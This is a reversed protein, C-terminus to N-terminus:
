YWQIQDNGADKLYNNALVFCNNYQWDRKNRPGAVPHEAKIVFHKTSTVEFKQAEAGWLLFVVNECNKDIAKITEAILRYWVGQHSNPQGAITTLSSNILFVGQEVWNSLDNRAVGSAKKIENLSVPTNDTVSAFALGCANYNPYPDQGIIVVKIKDIPMKYVKFWDERNPFVLTKQDKIFNIINTLSGNNVISLLPVWSSHFEQAASKAEENPFPIPLQNAGIDDKKVM